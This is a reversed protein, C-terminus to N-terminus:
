RIYEWDGRHEMIGDGVYLKDDALTGSVLGM